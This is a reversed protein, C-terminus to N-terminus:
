DNYNPHNMPPSNPLDNVVESRGSRWYATAAIRYYAIADLVRGRESKLSDAEGKAHTALAILDTAVGTQDGPRVEDLLRTLENDTRILDTARQVDEVTACSVLLLFFFVNIFLNMFKQM